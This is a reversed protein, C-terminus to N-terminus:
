VLGYEILSCQAHLQDRDRPLWDVPSNTMFWFNQAIYPVRQTELAMVLNDIDREESSINARLTAM